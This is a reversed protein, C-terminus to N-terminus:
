KLVGKSIEEEIKCMGGLTCSFNCSPYDFEEVINLTKKLIEDVIKEANPTKNKIRKNIQEKLIKFEKSLHILLRSKDIAGCNYSCQEFEVRDMNRLIENMTSTIIKDGNFKFHNIPKLIRKRLSEKKLTKLKGEIEYKIERGRLTNYKGFLKEILALVEELIEIRELREKDWDGM